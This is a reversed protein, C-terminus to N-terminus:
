EYFEKRLLRESNELITESMFDFSVQKIDSLESIVSELLNRLNNHDFKKNFLWEIAEVGDTEILIRDMPLLKVLNRVNEDVFIAPGITFYSGLGIFERIYKDCSYWHIVMELDYNKLIDYIRGEMNKTHLIIPKKYKEALDLSMVFVREQDEFPTDCWCADMGIEGILNSRSVMEEYSTGFQKDVTDADFPHIGMSYYINDIYFVNERLLFDVNDMLNNYEERSQCNILPWIDQEYYSKLVEISSIHTHFDYIRKRNGSM